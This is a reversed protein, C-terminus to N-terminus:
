VKAKAQKHSASQSLCKGVFSYIIQLLDSESIQLHNTIFHTRLEIPYLKQSRILLNCTRTRGSAGNITLSKHRNPSAEYSM